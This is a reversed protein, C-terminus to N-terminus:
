STYTIFHFQKPVRASRITGQRSTGYTHLSSAQMDGDLAAPVSSLGGNACLATKKGSTWKCRCATPCDTWDAALPLPVAALLLLLALPLLQSLPLQPSQPPPTGPLLVPPGPEGRGAM